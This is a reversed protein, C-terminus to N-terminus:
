AEMEGFKINIRCQLALKRIAKDLWTDFKELKEKDLKQVRGKHTKDEFSGAMIGAMRGCSILEMLTDWDKRNIYSHYFTNTPQLIPQYDGGTITNPMYTKFM